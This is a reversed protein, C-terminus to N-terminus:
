TPTNEEEERVRREINGADIERIAEAHHEMAEEYTCARRGWVEGYYSIKEGDSNFVYTEFHVPAGGGFSHDLPLFITSVFFGNYHEQKLMNRLRQGDSFALKVDDTYVPKNDDGLYAWEMNM